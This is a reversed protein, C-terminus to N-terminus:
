KKNEFIKDLEAIRETLYTVEDLLLKIEGADDSYPLRNGVATGLEYCKVKSDRILVYLEQERNMICIYGKEEM